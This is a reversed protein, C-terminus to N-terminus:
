TNLRSTLHFPDYRFRGPQDAWAQRIHEYPTIGKRTKLRTAFNYANLFAESISESDRAAPRFGSYHPGRVTALTTHLLECVGRLVGALSHTM